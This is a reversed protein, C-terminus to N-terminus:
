SIRFPSIRLGTVVYVQIGGILQFTQAYSSLDTLTVKVSLCTLPM